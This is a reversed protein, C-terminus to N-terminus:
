STWSSALAYKLEPRKLIKSLRVLTVEKMAAAKAGELRTVEGVCADLVAGHLRQPGAMAGELAAREPAEESVKLAGWLAKLVLELGELKAQTRCLFMACPPLLCTM